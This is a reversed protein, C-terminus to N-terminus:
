LKGGFLVFFMFKPSAFDVLQFDRYLETSSRPVTSIASLERLLTINIGMFHKVIVHTYLKLAWMTKAKCNVNKQPLVITISIIILLFCVRM